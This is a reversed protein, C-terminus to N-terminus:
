NKTSDVLEYTVVVAVEGANGGATLNNRNIVLPTNKAVLDTSSPTVVTVTGATQSTAATINAYKTANGIIGVQINSSVSGGDTTVVYVVRISQIKLQCDPHFGVEFIPTTSNIDFYAVLTRARAEPSMNRNRIM